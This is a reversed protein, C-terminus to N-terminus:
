RVLPLTRDEQNRRVDDDGQRPHPPRTVRVPRVEVSGLRAHPTRSAVRLADNLDRAEILFFGALEENTEAFPGDSLGVRGDRVRLTTATHVPGLSAAALLRGSSRLSERLRVWEDRLAAREGEPMGDLRHEDRYVLCVYRV